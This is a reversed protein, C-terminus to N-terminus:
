AGAEKESAAAPTDSPRVSGGKEQVAVTEGITSPSARRDKPGLRYRYWYGRWVKQIVCAADFESTDPLSLVRVREREWNIAIRLNRIATRLGETIEADESYHSSGGEMENLVSRLRDLERHDHYLRLRMKMLVMQRGKGLATEILRKNREMLIQRETKQSFPDVDRPPDPSQRFQKVLTDTKDLAELRQSLGQDFLDLEEDFEKCMARRDSLYSMAGDLREITARLEDAKKRYEITQRKFKEIQPGFCGKSEGSHLL